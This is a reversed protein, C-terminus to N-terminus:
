KDLTDKIKKEAEYTDGDVKVLEAKFSNIYIMLITNKATYDDSLNLNDLSICIDQLRDYCDDSSIVGSNYNDIVKVAREGLEYTSEAMGSPIKQGGCGSLILILTLFLAVTRKM